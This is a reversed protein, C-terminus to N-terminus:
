EAVTFTQSSRATGGMTTITIPGTVASAPVTATVQKDSNVSFETSAVGGFAVETTQRLSVGDVVLTKCIGERESHLPLADV